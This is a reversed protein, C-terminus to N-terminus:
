KNKCSIHVIMFAQILQFKLLIGEGVVSNAAM